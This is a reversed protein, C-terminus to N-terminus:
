SSVVLDHDIEEDHEDDTGGGQEDDDFLGVYEEDSNTPNHEAAQPKQSVTATASLSRVM